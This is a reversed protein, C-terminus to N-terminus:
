LRKKKPTFSEINGNKEKFVIKKEDEIQNYEDTKIKIIINNDEQFNVNNNIVIYNLFYKFSIFAQIEIANRFINLFLITNIDILAKYSSKSMCNEDNDNTKKLSYQNWMRLTAM